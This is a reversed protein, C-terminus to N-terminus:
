GDESPGDARVLERSLSRILSFSDTNEYRDDSQSPNDQKEGIAHPEKIEVIQHNLGAFDNNTGSFADAVSKYGEVNKYGETGAFATDFAAKTQFKINLSLNKPADDREVFASGSDRYLKSGVVYAPPIGKLANTVGSFDNSVDNVIHAIAFVPFLTSLFVIVSLVKIFPLQYFLCSNKFGNVVPAKSTTCLKKM